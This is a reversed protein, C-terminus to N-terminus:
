RRREDRKEKKRIGLLEVNALDRKLSTALVAVIVVILIGIVMLNYLIAALHVNNNGIKM